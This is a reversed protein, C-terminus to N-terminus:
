PQLSETEKLFSFCIEILEKKNFLMFPNDGAASGCSVASHGNSDAYLARQDHLLCGLRQFGQAVQIYIYIFAFM